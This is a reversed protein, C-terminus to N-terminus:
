TKWEKNKTMKVDTKIKCAKNESQLACCISFRSIIFIKLFYLRLM